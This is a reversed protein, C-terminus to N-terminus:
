TYKFGDKKHRHCLQFVIGVAASINLRKQQPQWIRGWQAYGRAPALGSSVIFLGILLFNRIKMIGEQVGCRRLLRDIDAGPGRQRAANWELIYSSRAFRVLNKLHLGGM